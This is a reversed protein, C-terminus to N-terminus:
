VHARGIKSNLFFSAESALALALRRTSALRAGMSARMLSTRMRMEWAGVLVGAWASASASSLRRSPWASGYWLLSAARFARSTSLGPEMTLGAVLGPDAALGLGFVLPIM